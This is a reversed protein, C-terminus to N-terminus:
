ESNQLDLYFEGVRIIEEPSANTKIQNAKQSVFIVNGKTYGLAPIIRDLSPSNETPGRRGSGGFSLEIGLAPCLNDKPYISLLFDVDLDFEINKQESRKKCNSLLSSIRATFEAKPSLWLEYINRSYGKFIYGDERVDGYEPKSM